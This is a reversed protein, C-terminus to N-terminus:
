ISGISRLAGKAKAPRAPLVFAKTVGRYDDGCGPQEDSGQIGRLRRAANASCRALGSIADIGICIALIGRKRLLSQFKLIQIGSTRHRVHVAQKRM